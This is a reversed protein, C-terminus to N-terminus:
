LTVEGGIVYGTGVLLECSDKSETAGGRVTLRIWLKNASRLGVSTQVCM